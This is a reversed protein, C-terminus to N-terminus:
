IDNQCSPVTWGQRRAIFLTHDMVSQMITINFTLSSVNQTKIICIVLNSNTIGSYCFTPEFFNDHVFNSSVYVWRICQVYLGVTVSKYKEQGYSMSMMVGASMMELLISACGILGIV